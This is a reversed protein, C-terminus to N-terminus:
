WQICCYGVFELVEIKDQKLQPIADPLVVFDTGEVLAAQSVGAMGVTMLAAAMLKKFLM